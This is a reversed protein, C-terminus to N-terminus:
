GSDPPGFHPPEVPSVTEQSPVPTRIAGGTNPSSSPKVSPSPSSLGRFTAVDDTSRNITTQPVHTETVDSSPPPTVSAEPVALADYVDIGPEGFTKIGGPESSAKPRLLIFATGAVAALIVAVALMVMLEILTFGHEGNQPKWISVDM